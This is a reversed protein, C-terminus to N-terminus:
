VTAQSALMQRLKSDREVASTMSRGFFERPGISGLESPSYGTGLQSNLRAVTEGTDGEGTLEQLERQLNGQAQSSLLAYATDYDAQQLADFFNQAALDPSGASPGCGAVLMALSFTLVLLFMRAS